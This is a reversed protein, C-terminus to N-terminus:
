DVGECALEKFTMKINDEWRHKLRGLPRRAETIEFLIFANKVVHMSCTEGMENKIVCKQLGYNDDGKECYISEESVFVLFAIVNSDIVTESLAVRSPLLEWGTVWQHSTRGAYIESPFIQGV